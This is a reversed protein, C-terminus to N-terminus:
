TLTTSSALARRKEVWELSRWAWAKSLSLSFERLLSYIDSFSRCLRRSVQQSLLIEKLSLEIAQTDPEKDNELLSVRLDHLNVRFDLSRDQSETVATESPQDQASTQDESVESISLFFSALGFLVDTILLIHASDVTLIVIGSPNPGGSMSYLLMIQNRTHSAPGMIQKFKSSGPRSNNMTISKLSFEAEMSGDSILKARLVSENLLLHAIEHNSLDEPRVASRDYLQLKVTPLALVVETTTYVLPANPGQVKPSLEPQLDMTAQSPKPEITKPASSPTPTPTPASGDPM